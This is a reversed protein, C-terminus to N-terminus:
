DSKSLSIDDFYVIIRDSEYSQPCYIGFKFTPGQADNFGVSINEASFSDGNFEINISGTRNETYDFKQQILIHNWSGIKPKTLTIRDENDYQWKKNKSRTVIEKSSRYRYYLEGNQYTLASIPHRWKEGKDFDPVSHVQMLILPKESTQLINDDILFRFKIVLASIGQFPTTKLEAGKTKRTGDWDVKRWEFKVKGGTELFDEVISISYDFPKEIGWFESWKGDDFSDEIVLESASLQISPILCFMILSSIVCYKNLRLYRDIQILYIYQNIYKFLNIRM